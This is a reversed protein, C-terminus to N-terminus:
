PVVTAMKAWYNRIRTMGVSGDTHQNLCSYQTFRKPLPPDARDYLMIRMCRELKSRTLCPVEVYFRTNVFHGGDVVRHCPMDTPRGPPRLTPRRLLGYDHLGYGIPRAILTSHKKDHLGHDIPRVISLKGKYM